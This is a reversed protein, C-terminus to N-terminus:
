NGYMENVSATAADGGATKWEAILTDYYDIPEVGMIIKTYGQVLLDNLTSGYDIVAQPTAGWVKDKLIQENDVHGIARALSSQAYGMQLYRGLGVSDKDKIWKQIENYFLTGNGSSFKEVGTENAAVVEKIDNYHQFLVKFPGTVHHMDHTNFPLVEELTMTGEGLSDDLIDVYSSTLKILVEPNAYGKRVVSYGDNQFTLPFMIKSDDVAPMPYAVFWTNDGQNDLMDKGVQWGAWNQQFYAGAFGKFADQFQAASDLTAFDERIYGKSYWEAWKALAAKTEPMTAGYVISGDPGDVWIQPAAHFSPAMQFFTSLTKELMVGYKAGHNKMFADMAFEFDAITKMNDDTIGSAEAWDKRLWLHMTSTEYGYHLRPMGMIKGDVMATEVIDWNSEMMDKYSPSGYTEYAETLDEILDAAILQNFQVTNARFADPIAQSAIALNLKTDYEISVWDALVEVNFREKWIKTWLNNNQDEGEAFVANTVEPYAVKIQVTEAYPARWDM